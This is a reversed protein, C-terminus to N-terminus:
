GETESGGQVVAQETANTEEQVKVEAAEEVAQNNNGNADWMETSTIEGGPVPM